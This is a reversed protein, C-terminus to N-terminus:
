RDIRSAVGVIVQVSQPLVLYRSDKSRLFLGKFNVFLSIFSRFIKLAPFSNAQRFRFYLSGYKLFVYSSVADRNYSSNSWELWM